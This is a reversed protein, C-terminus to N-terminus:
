FPCDAVTSKVHVFNKNASSTETTFTTFLGKGNTLFSSSANDLGVGM